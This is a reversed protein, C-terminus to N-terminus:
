ASPPSTVTRDSRTRGSRGAVPQGGTVVDVQFRFSRHGGPELRLRDAWEPRNFADTMAEVPEVALSARRDRALTDGTFVHVLGGAQRLALHVGTAPAGITTTAVGGPARLDGFAADVVDDGVPAWRAGDHPRFALDGPLPVLEADTRVAFRSPVTLHLADVTPAGPLRFYPHWGSAFPAARRGVNRGTIEVTLSTATLGLAVDVVVAFPYGAATGDALAACRLRAGATTADEHQDVVTFPETRVLGHYVVRDRSGPLLDFVQGDFRYRADEVRNCFPAMFGNRVGDQGALEDGDRYGDLVDWPGSGLPVTWRLPTAGLLAVVLEAGGARLAVTPGVGRARPTM